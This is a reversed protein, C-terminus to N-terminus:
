DGAVHARIRYRISVNAGGDPFTSWGSAAYDTAGPAYYKSDGTTGVTYAGKVHDTTGVGLGIKYYAGGVCTCTGTLAAHAWWQPTTSTITKAASGQCQLVDATNWMSVRFDGNTGDSKGYLELSDITRTGTGPCQYTRNRTIWSAKGLPQYYSVGTIDTEGFYQGGQAPPPEIAVSASVQPAAAWGTSAPRNGLLICSGTALPTVAATVHDQNISCVTSSTPDISLVCAGGSTTTCTSISRTGGSTTWGAAQFASVDWTIYQQQAAAAMVWPLVTQEPLPIGQNSGNTVTKGSFSALDNGAVDTISGAVDTWALSGDGENYQVVRSLSFTLTSTGSGSQYTM